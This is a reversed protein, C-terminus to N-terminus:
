LWEGIKIFAIPILVVALITLSIFTALESPSNNFAEM